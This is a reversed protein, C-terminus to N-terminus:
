KLFDMLSPPFVKGGFQLTLMWSYEYQKLDTVEKTDSINELKGLLESLNVVDEDLRDGTAELFQSKTGIDTLNKLFDTMGANYDAYNKEVVDRNYDVGDEKNFEGAIDTIMDVMNQSVQIGDRTESGFGLLDLGSFNLKFATSPDVQTPDSKIGLGLDFYIEKEDPMVRDTLPDPADAANPKVYYKGDLKYINEVFEGNYRLRQTGEDIEFPPAANASGSFLYRGSYQANALQVIQDRMSILGGGVISRDTKYTDSMAMVVDGKITQFVKNISSMNSEATAIDGEADRINDLYQQSDALQTRVKLGRIGESVNESIRTYKNGSEMRQMSNALNNQCRNANKLYTRAMMSQTIRIM